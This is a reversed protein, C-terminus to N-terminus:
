GERRRRIIDPLYIYGVVLAFIVAGVTISAIFVYGFPSQTSINFTYTTIENAAGELNYLDVHMIHNGQTEFAFDLIHHAGEVVRPGDSHVETGDHLIRVRMIVGPLEEYDSDTVRFLVQSPEGIQPFEPLTAVQVRHGAIYQEASNFLSHAAADPAMAAAALVAAAAALVALGKVRLARPRRSAGNYPIAGPRPGAGQRSM